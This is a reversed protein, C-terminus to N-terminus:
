VVVPHLPDHVAALGGVARGVGVVLQLRQELLAVGDDVGDGISATARRPTEVVCDYGFGTANGRDADDGAAEGARGVQASGGEAHGAGADYDEGAGQGAAGGLVDLLHGLVVGGLYDGEQRGLQVRM